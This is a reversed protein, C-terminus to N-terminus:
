AHGTVQSVISIFHDAHTGIDLAANMAAIDTADEPVERAALAALAPTLPALNRVVQWAPSAALIEDCFSNRETGLVLCGAQYAEFGVRGFGESESSLVVVDAATYATQMDDVFGPLGVWDGLGHSRAFAVLQPQLPGAGAVVVRLDGRRLEDLAGELFEVIGKGQVLRSALLLTLVPEGGAPQGAAWARLRRLRENRRQRALPLPVPSPVPNHLVCANRRVARGLANAPLGSALAYRSIFVARDSMAHPLLALHLKVASRYFLAPTTRESTALPLGLWRCVLAAALNAQPMLSFVARPRQQQLHRHLRLMAQAINGARLRVTQARLSDPLTYEDRLEFLCLIQLAEGRRVLEEALQLISREAGGRGLSNIVICIM